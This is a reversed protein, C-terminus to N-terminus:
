QFRVKDRECILDSWYSSSNEDPNLLLDALDEYKYSYDRLHLMIDILCRIRLLLVDEENTYGTLWSISRFLVSGDNIVDVPQYSKFHIDSDKDPLLQFYTEISTSSIQHKKQDFPTRIYTRQYSKDIYPQVEKCKIRCQAFGQKFADQINQYIDHLSQIQQDTSISSNTEM